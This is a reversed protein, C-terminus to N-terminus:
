SRQIIKGEVIKGIINGNKDYAYDDENNREQSIEVESIFEFGKRFDDGRVEKALEMLKQWQEPTVKEWEKQWSKKDLELKLGSLIGNIEKKIEFYKYKEVETNFVRFRPQQFSKKDDYDESYCFTNYETM